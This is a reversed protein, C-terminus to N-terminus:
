LATLTLPHHRDPFPKIIARTSTTRRADFAPGTRV